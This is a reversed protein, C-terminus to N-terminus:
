LLVWEGGDERERQSLTPTLTDSVVLDVGHDVFRFQRGSRAGRM